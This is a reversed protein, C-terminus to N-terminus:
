LPGRAWGPVDRQYKEYNDALANSEVKTQEWVETGKPLRKLGYWERIYARAGQKDEAYVPGCAYGDGPLCYYWERM